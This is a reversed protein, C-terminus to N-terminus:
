HRSGQSSTSFALFETIGEPYHQAWELTVEIAIQVLLAVPDRRQDAPLAHYRNYIERSIPHMTKSM